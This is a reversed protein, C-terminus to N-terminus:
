NHKASDQLINNLIEAKARDIQEHRMQDEFYMLCVVDWMHALEPELQSRYAESSCEGSLADDAMGSALEEPTALGTEAYLEIGLRKAVDDHSPQSGCGTLVVVSAAFATAIFTRKM